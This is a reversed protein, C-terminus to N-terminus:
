EFFPARYAQKCRPYRQEDGPNPTIPQSRQTQWTTSASHASVDPLNQRTTEFPSTMQEGDGGPQSSAPTFAKPPLPRLFSDYLFLARAPGGTKM